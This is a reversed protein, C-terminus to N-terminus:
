QGGEKVAMGDELEYNGEVVVPAQTDKLGAIAVLGGADLRRTVAARRAKGGVVQFVYDGKEDTLVADHPVALASVTETGLRAAVKMGPALAAALGRPVVAVADVLQTKPDLADQVESVRLDIHPAAADAQGDPWITVPTGAHVATRRTPEVGILVKVTDSRGLQVIAAGAQVRDGQAVAVTNVVGDFPAKLDGPGAGGQEDLARLANRADRWAKDATDVQSQTALHSAMLEKQRNVERQAVAEADVAQRYAQQTAPDPALSAVAEGKKVQDGVVVSLRTVQGPRAFSLGVTQGAAVEGIADFTETLSRVKPVESRVQAVPAEEAPKAADKAAQAGHAEWWWGAGGAGIAAAVLGAAMSRKM